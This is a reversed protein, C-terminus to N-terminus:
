ETNSVGLVESEYLPRWLTHNEDHIAVDSWIVIDLIRTKSLVVPIEQGAYPGRLAHVTGISAAFASLETLAERNSKCLGRIGRQVAMFTDVRDSTSGSGGEDVGVCRRVYADSIAVFRPRLLYLVKSVSVDTLGSKALLRRGLRALAEHGARVVTDDSDALDLEDPVDALEPVPEDIFHSWAERSSRARMARNMTYVHVERIRDAAQSAIGGAYDYEAYADREVFTRIKWHCDELV